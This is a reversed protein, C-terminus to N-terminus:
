FAYVTGPEDIHIRWAGSEPIDPPVPVIIYHPEEAERVQPPYFVSLVLQAGPQTRAYRVIRDMPEVPLVRWDRDAFLALAPHFSVVTVGEPSARRIALGVTANEAAVIHHPSGVILSLGLRVLSTGLLALALAGVLLKPAMEGRIRGETRRALRDGLAVVGAAAYFAALPALFLQTRPDIAVTRAIVLSTVVLPIGVLAELDLRRERMRTVLGVVAFLWLYWPFVVGLAEAYRLLGQKPADAASTASASAPAPSDAGSSDAPSGSAQTADAGRSSEAGGDPANVGVGESPQVGWYGNALRTGSADLSYLSRIYPAEDGRWLMDEIRNSSSAAGLGVQSRVPPIVQVWRGTITWRGLADHLYLWYPTSVAVFALACATFCWPRSATWRGRARAGDTSAVVDRRGWSVLALVLALIGAVGFAGIAEPRALYALGFAVGCAAAAGLSREDWARLLLALGTFVFLHLLPEAGVWLDWGIWYPVVFPALSPLLAVFAVGVTAVREGALRRFVSWCPVVVLGAAVAAVLRGAWVTDGVLVDLAGSLMPFLPSLAVHQLGSLTYGDGSWLNRGLLLYWGEDFAVYDGRGFLLGIRLAIAGM